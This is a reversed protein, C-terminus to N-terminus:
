TAAAERHAGAFASDGVEILASVDLLETVQRQVVATYLVHDRSARGRVQLPDAVIDLIREVVLGVSRTGDTCVVVHVRSANALLESGGGNEWLGV